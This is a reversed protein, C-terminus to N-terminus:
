LLHPFGLVVTPHSPSQFSPPVHATRDGRVASTLQGTSASPALRLCPARENRRSRTLLIIGEPGSCGRPLEFPQAGGLLDSVLM